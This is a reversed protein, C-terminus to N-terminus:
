DSRLELGATRAATSSCISTAITAGYYLNGLMAENLFGEFIDIMAADDSRAGATRWPLAPHFSVSAFLFFEAIVVTLFIYNAQSLLALRPRLLHETHILNAAM